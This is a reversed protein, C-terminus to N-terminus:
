YCTGSACFTLSGENNTEDPEAVAGGSDATAEVEYFCGPSWTEDQPSIADEYRTGGAGIPAIQLTAHLPVIPITFTAAECRATIAIGLQFYGTAAMGANHIRATVPKEPNLVRQIEVTLDPFPVATLGGQGIFDFQLTAVNNGEHSETVDAGSDAQVTVQYRCGAVWGPGAPQVPAIRTAGAGLTQIRPEPEAPPLTPPTGPAQCVAEITVALDFSTGTGSTGSNRIVARAPQSIASPAVVEVTLDPAAGPTQGGGPPNNQKKKPLTARQLKPSHASSPTARAKGRSAENKAAVGAAPLALVALLGLALWGTPRM